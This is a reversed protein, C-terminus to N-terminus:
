ETDTETAFGLAKKLLRNLETIEAPNLNALVEKNVQKVIPPLKRATNRGHETLVVLYARRSDPDPLREVLDSSQLADILRSVKYQPEGTRAGLEAQNLGDKELLSMLNAFFRISLDLASLHRSLASDMTHAMQTILWGTSNERIKKIRNEM